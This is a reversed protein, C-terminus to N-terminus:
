PIIWRFNTKYVSKVPKGAADLAPHFKGAREQLLGCSLADLTAIGSTEVVMCDKMTGTEDIMMMMSTVGSAGERLAQGPYDENSVAHGLPKLPEAARSLAAAAAEDANWHRRLDANCRDLAKLVAAIGPLAFREDIDRGGKLAIEGARSLGELAARPFNIWIIDLKKNASAFRLGTAKAKESTVTTTVPFHYPSHVRGARAVMLRVVKGDPSPRFALTVPQEASGYQRAATCATEGYDVVWKGTPQRLQPPAAASATAAACALLAVACFFAKM